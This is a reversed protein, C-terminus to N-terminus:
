RTAGPKLTVRMVGQKVGQTEFHLDPYVSDFTTFEALVKDETLLQVGAIEAQADWWIPPKISVSQNGEVRGLIRFPYEYVSESVQTETDERMAIARESYYDYYHKIADSATAYRIVPKEINVYKETVYALHQDLIAFAGGRTSQWDGSGMMNKAHGFGVIFHVGPKVRGKNDTFAKVGEDVRSNLQQLTSTEWQIMPKPTPAMELTGYDKASNAPVNISNKATFYLAQGYPAGAAGGLNAAHDSNALIGNMWLAQISIEMLEPTHGFQWSGTREILTERRTLRMLERKHDYLYGAASELDTYTGLKQFGATWSLYEGGNDVWALRSQDWDLTNLSSRPDWYAHPHPAYEHGAASGRRVQEVLDDYLGEWYPSKEAAAEALYWVGTATLHTWYAGYKEAIDNLADVKEIMLVEFGRRSLYTAGGLRQPYRITIENDETLIYYIVGEEDEAAAMTKTQAVHFVLYGAIVVIIVPILWFLRHKSFFRKM